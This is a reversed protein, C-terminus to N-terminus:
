RCDRIKVRIANQNLCSSVGERPSRDCASGVFDGDGVTRTNRAIRRERGLASVNVPLVIVPPAKEPAVKLPVNSPANPLVVGLEIAAVVM